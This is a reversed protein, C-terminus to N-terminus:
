EIVPLRIIFITGKGVESEVSIDGSHEKIIGYSVSLGLGTGEGVPKTTFFPDFLKDLHDPHIGYGNDTFKLELCKQPKDQKVVTVVSTAIILKGGDKMAHQANLIMNTFVQQLQQKNALVRPLNVQLQKVLEIQHMDLQHETFILTDELTENIDVPEFTVEADAMRSFKLLNQIIVRCREAAKLIYDVYTLYTQNDQAPLDNSIKSNLLQAYGLIGGLPNNIEHSVGAALQGIASLKGAQLLQKHTEKLELYAKELEESQTQIEQHSIKINRTMKNFVQALLGIEDTSPISIEQDYKGSAIVEAGNAFLMLPEIVSSDLFKSLLLGLIISVFGVFIISLNRTHILNKITEQLSIEMRVYGILKSELRSAPTRKKHAEEILWETESQKKEYTKVIACIKIIDSEIESVYSSRGSWAKETKTLKHVVPVKPAQPNHFDALLVEQQDFIEVAVIDKEKVINELLNELILKDKVLVGYESDYALNIALSVGWKEADKILIKKQQYTFFTVLSGAMLLIFLTMISIIKVRLGWGNKKAFSKNNM